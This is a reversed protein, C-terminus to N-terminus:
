SPDGKQNLSLQLAAAAEVLESLQRNIREREGADIADGGTLARDIESSVDGVEKVIAMFRRSIGCDSDADVDPLLVVVAGLQRAMLRLPTLNRAARMAPVLSEAQFKHTDCDPNAANALYGAQKGIAEAIEALTADSHHVLCYIAEAMTRPECAKGNRCSKRGQIM